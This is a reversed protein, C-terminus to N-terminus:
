PPLGPQLAIPMCMKTAPPMLIVGNRQVNPHRNFHTFFHLKFLQQCFPGILAIPLTQPCINLVNHEMHAPVM